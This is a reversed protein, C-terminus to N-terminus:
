SKSQIPNSQCNRERQRDAFPARTLCRKAGGTRKTKTQAAPALRWGIGWASWLRPSGPPALRVELWLQSGQRAVGGPRAVGDLLRARPGGRAGDGLPRALPPLPHSTPLQPRPSPAAALRPQRPLVPPRPQPLPAGTTINHNTTTQTTPHHHHHYHTHSSHNNTTAQRQNNRRRAHKNRARQQSLCRQAASARNRPLLCARLPLRAPPRAVSRPRPPPLPRRAGRPRASHAKGRGGVAARGPALAHKRPLLLQTIIYIHITHM